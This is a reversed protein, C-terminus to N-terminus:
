LTSMIAPPACGAGSAVVEDIFAVVEQEFAGSCTPIFHGGPHVHVRRLGCSMALAESRERPIIADAAGIVHMTPASIGVQELDAALAADRPMFGSIAILCAPAPLAEDLGCRCMYYAAVAAGQSFGLLAFVPGHELMAARVTDEATQWGSIVM